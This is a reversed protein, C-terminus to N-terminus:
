FYLIQKSEQQSVEMNTTVGNYLQYEAMKAIAEYTGDCFDYGVCGHFHIDTLGPIVYLGTADLVEGEGNMVIKDKDIYLDQNVFSGEETFILGNKINM